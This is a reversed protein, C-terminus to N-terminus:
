RRTGSMRHFTKEATWTTFVFGDGHVHIFRSWCARRSLFHGSPQPIADILGSSFHLSNGFSLNVGGNVLGHVM